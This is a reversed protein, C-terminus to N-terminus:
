ATRISLFVDLEVFDIMRKMWGRRLAIPGDIDRHIVVHLGTSRCFSGTEWRNQSGLSRLWSMTTILKEVQSWDVGSLDLRKWPRGWCSSSSGQDCHQNSCQPCYSITICSSKPIPTEPFTQKYPLENVRLLHYVFSILSAFKIPVGLSHRCM